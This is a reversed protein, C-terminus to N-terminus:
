KNERTTGKRQSYESPQLTSFCLLHEANRPSRRLSSFRSSPSRPIGGVDRIHRCIRNFSHRVSIQARIDANSRLPLRLQKLAGRRADCHCNSVITSCRSAFYDCETS